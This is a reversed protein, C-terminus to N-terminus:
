EIRDSVRKGLPKALNRTEYRNQTRRNVDQIRGMHLQQLVLNNTVVWHVRMQQRMRRFVPRRM